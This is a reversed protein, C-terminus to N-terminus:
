RTKVKTASGPPRFRWRQYARTACRDLEGYGTSQLTDVSSVTGDARITLQFIGSREIHNLRFFFPYCPKETHTAYLVRGDEAKVMVTSSTTQARGVAAFTLSLIALTILRRM